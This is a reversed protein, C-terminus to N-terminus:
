YHTDLWYYLNKWEVMTTNKFDKFANELQEPTLQKAKRGM